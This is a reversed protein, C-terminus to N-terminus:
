RESVGDAREAVSVRVVTEPRQQRGCPQTSAGGPGHRVQGVPQGILVAPKAFEVVAFAANGGREDQGVLIEGVLLLPHEPAQGAWAV